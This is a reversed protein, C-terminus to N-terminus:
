EAAEASRHKAAQGRRVFYINRAYVLVGFQGVVLVPDLRYFGYAMVLLGGFFSFYWFADPVTSARKKESALWQVIWRGSFMAQGLLGVGLWALDTPSQAAWWQALKSM